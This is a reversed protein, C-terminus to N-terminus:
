EIVVLAEGFEVPQGNEVLIQTIKGSAPSPIQNMTKMAEIILLTQGQKVEAGVQIFPPTGPASSLYITGVMPSKVAGPHDGAPAPAAAVTVVPASHHLHPAPVHVTTAAAMARSVRFRTGKRELEIESLGTEGLIAALSRILDLAPDSKKPPATKKAAM